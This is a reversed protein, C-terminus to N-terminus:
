STENLLKRSHGWLAEFFGRQLKAYHEDTSLFTRNSIPGMSGHSTSERVAEGDIVLLDRIKELDTTEMHVSRLDLISAHVGYETQNQAIKELSRIEDDSNGVFIRRVKVRRNSIAKRQSEQYDAANNSLWFAEGRVSVACIESQCNKAVYDNFRSDLEIPIECRSDQLQRLNTLLSEVSIKAAEILLGNSKIARNADASKFYRSLRDVFNPVFQEITFMKEVSRITQIDGRAKIVEGIQFVLVAATLAFILNLLMDDSLLEGLFAMLVGLGVASIAVILSIRSKM